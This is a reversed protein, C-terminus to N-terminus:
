SSRSSRHCREATKLSASRFAPPLHSSQNTQAFTIPRNRQVTHVRQAIGCVTPRCARDGYGVYARLLCELPAGYVFVAVVHTPGLRLYFSGTACFPYSVVVHGQIADGLAAAPIPTSHQRAVNDVATPAATLPHM